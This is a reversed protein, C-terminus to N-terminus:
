RIFYKKCYMCESFVLRSASKGPCIYEDILGAKFLAITWYFPNCLKDEYNQGTGKQQLLSKLIKQYKDTNYNALLRVCGDM